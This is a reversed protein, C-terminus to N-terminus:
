DASAPLAKEIAPARSALVEVTLACARKATQRLGAVVAQQQTRLAERSTWAEKLKVALGEATVAQLELCLHSSNLLKMLSRVKPAYALGVVPVGVASALVLSHFRMGVFMETRAMLAQIDHSLLDRNGVLPVGFHEALQQSIPEDMPHTSFFVLAVREEEAFHKLGQILIEVLQERSASREGKSLWEDLYRTVNVGVIPRDAPLRFQRALEGARPEETVPNIFAPDGTLEIPRHCGIERALQESDEDRLMVLDSSNLVWRALLRSATSPFPGIGCSFCILKAGSLKVIPVVTVLTILWNFLPNWLSKGFIIGDCILVGDSQWIARFTSLGFFRLSLTWPMISVGTARYREGYHKNVFSPRSSPVFFRTSPAALSLHHLISSLIAADGLNNGSNSGLLTLVLGKSAKMREPYCKMLSVAM